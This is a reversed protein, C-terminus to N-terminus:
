NLTEFYNTIKTWHDSWCPDKQDEKQGYRLPSSWYFQTTHKTSLKKMKLTVAINSKMEAALSSRLRSSVTVNLNDTPVSSTSRTKSLFNTFCCRAVFPGM